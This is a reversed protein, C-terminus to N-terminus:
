ALSKYLVNKEISPSMRELINKKTNPCVRAPINKEINPCVKPINSNVSASM